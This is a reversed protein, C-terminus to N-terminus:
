ELGKRNFHGNTCYADESLSFMEKLQLTSYYRKREDLPDKRLRSHDGWSYLNIYLVYAFRSSFNSTNALEFVTFNQSLQQIFVNLKKNLVIHFYDNEDVGIDPLLLLRRAKWGDLFDKPLNFYAKNQLEIIWDYYYKYNHSKTGCTNIIDKLSLVVEIEGNENTNNEQWKIKSLALGFIKWANVSLDSPMRIFDNRMAYNKNLVTLDKKSM